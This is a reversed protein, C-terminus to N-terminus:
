QVARQWQAVRTRYAQTREPTSGAVDVQEGPDACVDFLRSRDADIELLYKWCGDRLGLWGLSYDTFFLAMRPAPDLLSAGLYSSPTPLGLLSLITPALDIVSATRTVRRAEDVLGPAAILLPVRVNEEYAFLTHAYNGPHQGFAEGHDGFVVFLTSHDLGRARLGDLLVGVADDGEHLANLYRDYDREGAFPGRRTTPYPHHGAVPLYTLFFPAGATREDIWALMRRVTSAEDVGFSSRVNGGIAGADELLHYGRGDIISRMGLYDFRGSHFLATRYGAAALQEPLADCALTAYIEPVTDFLPYRSCLTAFLGKISEPYVAYARDFVLARRALSTVTPMPDVDAGYVRLYRAATSELAILVVNRGRAAGALPTLDDQMAAPFPSARWDSVKAAADAAPLPTPLLAFLVNRHLGRTETRSTAAPGIAVLLLAGGAVLRRARTSLDWSGRSLVFPVAAAAVLPLSLGVVNAATVYHTISDALAGGSARALTRTLPSALVATIPVNVAAYMAIAAYSMWAVLPRALLRDGALFLLAVLVDQWFYAVPAWPSWAAGDRLLYLSLSKALVLVALLSLARLAYRSEAKEAAAM